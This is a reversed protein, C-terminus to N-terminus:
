GASAELVSHTEPLGAWRMGRGREGRVPMGAEQLGSPIAPFGLVQFHIPHIGNREMHGASCQSQHKETIQM